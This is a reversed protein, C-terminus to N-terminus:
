AASTPAPRLRRRPFFAAAPPGVPPTQTALEEAGQSTGATPAPYSARTQGPVRLRVPVGELVHGARIFHGLLRATALTDTLAQHADVLEIGVHACCAALTHGPLDLHRRAHKWTCLGQTIEPVDIGAWGFHAAMFRGDFQPLRHAVPIRGAFLSYLDAAVEAFRPAGRVMARTVGHVGTPGVEDDQPRLLTDWSGTIEGDADVHVIAIEVLSDPHLRFGTTEIDFVAYGTM